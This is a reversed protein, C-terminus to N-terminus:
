AGRVYVHVGPRSTEEDMVMGAKAFSQRVDRMGERGYIDRHVELIVTNVGTLDADRLFEREGGEIDMMIVDHPFAAKLDAYRIVPVQHKVAKEPKKKVELASGLFNGRVFFDVTEPADPDSFCVGHRVDIVDALGNHAHLGKIHEILNPNAEVSVVAELGCNKALVAGVIGSGAGLELMRSGPKFKALGARVENKEFREANISELMKPGFHPADPVEIGHTRAVINM